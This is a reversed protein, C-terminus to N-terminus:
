PRGDVIGLIKDLYVLHRHDIKRRLDPAVSSEFAAKTAPRREVFAALMTKRLIGAEAPVGPTAKEIESRLGILRSRLEADTRSIRIWSATPPRAEADKAQNTVVRGTMVGGAGIAKAAPLPRLGQPEALVAPSNAKAAMQRASAVGVSPESSMPIANLDLLSQAIDRGDAPTPITANRKDSLVKPIPITSTARASDLALARRLDAFLEERLQRAEVTDAEVIYGHRWWTHHPVHVLQWGARRLIAVREMHADSYTRGDSCFHDPGDAEIAVSRRSVHDVLVFDLRKQGCATVQNYLQLSRPKQASVFDQLASLLVHEFKSECLREDLRWSSMPRPPVPQETQGAGLAIPEAESDTVTTSAFGFHGFYRRLRLANPPCRGIIAYTFKRARSTAVNFRKDAEYHARAYKHNDGLAFTLIIVDRENGQFEEPTGILLDVSQRQQLTLTEASERLIDRQETTFAVMGVSPLRDPCRFEHGGLAAGAQLAEGTMIENLIQFARDIENQVYKRVQTGEVQRGGGVEVLAFCAREQNHGLETMVKLGGDDAYFESSTFAGLAPLSRFHEDLTATAVPIPNTPTAIFDVISSSSVTLERDKAGHFSITGAMAGFAKNWALEEFTRNLSFLGAAELGLQKRDGVVVFAKARYLAPFVEAINVQSAEDVVAIDFIEPQLPLYAGIHRMEGLWLPFVKAINGFNVRSIQERVMRPGLQFLKEFQGLDHAYLRACELQNRRHRAVLLRKALGQVQRDLRAQESRLDNIAIKISDSERRAADHSAIAGFHMQLRPSNWPDGAIWNVGFERAYRVLRVRFSLLESTTMSQRQLRKTVVKALDDVTRQWSRGVQALRALYDRTLEANDFTENYDSRIRLHERHTKFFDNARALMAAIQETLEAMSAFRHKLETEAGFEDERASQRLREYERGSAEGILRHIRGRMAKRDMMEGGIFLTLDEGVVKELQQRVVDIAAKKHSVLLVNQKLLLASLMLAVITHSKGCGPPGQVYSIDSSWANCVAQAQHRSLSMPIKPLEQEVMRQIDADRSRMNVTQGRVSSALLNAFVRNRSGGGGRRIEGLAAFASLLDPVKTMFLFRHNFWTLRNSDILARLNESQFRSSPASEIARFQAVADGLRKRLKELYDRSLFEREALSSNADDEIQGDLDSLAKITVASLQGSVGIEAAEEPDAASGLIAAILDHNVTCQNWLFNVSTQEGRAAATDIEAPILLLPAAVDVRRRDHVIRGAVLGVGLFLRRDVSVAVDQQANLLYKEIEEASRRDEWSRYRDTASKPKRYLVSWRVASPLRAHWKRYTVSIPTSLIWIESSSRKNSNPECNM